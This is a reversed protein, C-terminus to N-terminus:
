IYIYIYIHIRNIRNIYIFLTHTDEIPETERSLGSVGHDHARPKMARVSRTLEVKWGVGRVRGSVTAKRMREEDQMREVGGGTGEEWLSKDRDPDSERRKRISM